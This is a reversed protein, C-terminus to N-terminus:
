HSNLGKTWVILINDCSGILLSFEPPVTAIDYVEIAAIDAVSLDSNVEAVNDAHVVIGNVLLRGHLPCANARITSRGTALGPAGGFTLRPITEVLQVFDTAHRHEIAASDVYHGQGTRQRYKFADVQGLAHVDVAALMTISSDMTVVVDNPMRDSLTVPLQVRAFGIKQVLLLQTGSRLKGLTFRGAADTSATGADGSLQVRADVIPNERSDVVGGSLIARGGITSDHAAPLPSDAPNVASDRQAPLVIDRVDLSLQDIAVAETGFAVPVSATSAGRYTAQVHGALDDPLGCIEYAGNYGSTADASHPIAHMSNAGNTGITITYWTLHVRAGALGTDADTDMIRGILLGSSGDSGPVGDCYQKVLGAASPIQLLVSSVMGGHLQVSQAVLHLGLSDLLPHTVEVDYVGPSLGDVRFLGSADTSANRAGQPMGNMHADHRTVRIVADSLPVLHLSDNVLGTLTALATDTSSALVHSWRIAALPGHPTGNRVIASGTGQATISYAVLSM